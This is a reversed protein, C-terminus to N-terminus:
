PETLVFVPEVRPLPFRERRRWARRYVVGGLVGILVTGFRFILGRPGLPVYFFAV